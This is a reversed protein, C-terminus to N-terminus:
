RNRNKIANIRGKREANGLQRLVAQRAIAFGTVMGLLFVILGLIAM